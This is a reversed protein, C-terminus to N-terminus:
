KKGKKRPRGTKNKQMLKKVAMLRTIDSADWVRVPPKGPRAQIDPPQVVGKQIWSQLTARTVKVAKAAGDTTYTQSSV